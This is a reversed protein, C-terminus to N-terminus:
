LRPTARTSWPCRVSARHCKASTRRSSGLWALARRKRLLIPFGHCIDRKRWPRSHTKEKGREQRKEQFQYQNAVQCPTDPVHPVKGIEHQHTHENAHAQAKHAM